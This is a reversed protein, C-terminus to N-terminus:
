PQKSEPKIIGFHVVRKRDGIWEVEYSGTKEFPLGLHNPPMKKSFMLIGHKKIDKLSIWPSKYDIQHGILLHRRGNPSLSVLGALWRDGGVFKLPKDTSQRWAEEAEAIVQDMPWTIRNPKGKQSLSLPVQLAYAMPLIVLLSFCGIILRKRAKKTLTSDLLAVVFLGSTTFMPTGWMDKLGSGTILAMLAVLTAPALTMIALFRQENSINTLFNSQNREKIGSWKIPWFALVLILFLPAHDLIQALLFKIPNFFSASANSREQAYTLTIFDNDILWFIHPAMVLFSLAAGLWPWPSTLAARLGKNVLIWIGVILLLIAVSYKAYFGVGAWLGFALWGLKDGPETLVRHFYYILAAWIPLQIVNHNLEPTPLSFYYIGTLLLTGLAANQISMLRKGLAFIYYFTIVVCLQSALHPGWIPEGTLMMSAEALWAPLPPHKFYGLQWEHGWYLMEVVDLTPAQSAISPLLTWMFLQIICLVVILMTPRNNALDLLKDSLSSFLAM